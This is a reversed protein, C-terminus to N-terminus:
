NNPLDAVVDGYGELFYSIISIVIIFIVSSCKGRSSFVVGWAKWFSALNHNEM